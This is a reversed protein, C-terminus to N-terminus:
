GWGRENANLKFNKQNSKWFRDLANDVLRTTKLKKRVESKEIEGVKFFFAGEDSKSRSSRFLSFTLLQPGRRGERELKFGSSIGAGFVTEVYLDMNSVPLVQLPILLNFKRRGIDDKHVSRSIEEEFM